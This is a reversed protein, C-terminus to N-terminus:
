TLKISEKPLRGSNSSLLKVLQRLDEDKYIIETHKLGQSSSTEMGNMTWLSNSFKCGRLTVKELYPSYKLFHELIKFNVSLDCRDLLLSRLDMFEPVTVSEESLVKAPFRLLELSTVNSFSGLLKTQNKCLTGQLDVTGSRYRDTVHLRFMDLSFISINNPILLHDTFDEFKELEEDMTYDRGQNRFEEEDVDLCLVSRWLNTWRTSLVCTQVVQRAKMFSMIHHIICDPLASLRDGAWSTAAQVPGREKPRLSWPADQESWKRQLDRPGFWEIRFAVSTSSRPSPIQRTGCGRASFVWGHSPRRQLRIYLSFAQVRTERVALSLLNKKKQKCGWLTLSELNPSNRLVYESIHHSIDCYNLELTTMNRFEPFTRPVVGSVMMEFNSLVLSTVNSVGCLINLQDGRLKSQVRKDDWLLITAKALSTMQNLCVGGALSQDTVYLFLCALAPATVTLPGRAKKNSSGSEAASSRLQIDLSELTPSTIQSLETCTCCKLSLNKLSDSAIARFNCTCSKLELHELSPCGSRLHQAFSEDLDVNSLHLRRLRWPKFCSARERQHVGPEQAGYKIARRIWSSAHKSAGFSYCTRLRFTDLRAISVHTGLLIVSFDEFKHWAERLGAVLVGTEFETQDVDLCPVSRWLHRWRTSLVCTQVVQRAKMFSMIHHLLGDPLSSLRDGGAVVIMGPHEM